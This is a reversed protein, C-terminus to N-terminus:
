KLLRRFRWYELLRMGTFRGVILDLVMTGIILVEPELIAFERLSGWGLLLLSGLSLVLTELTLRATESIPKGIQAEIFSEAVLILVLVPFVEVNVWFYSTLVALSIFWILLAMRALYHMKMGRLILRALTAAGLIILFFFLGPKVGIALFAVSLMAPTFVGFGRIGIFHRAAAILAAVLPFLLLIVITEPAVGKDVAFRIAYKLLNTPGISGLPQNLLLSELM